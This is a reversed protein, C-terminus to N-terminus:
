EGAGSVGDDSIVSLVCTQNRDALIAQVEPSAQGIPIVALSSVEFVQGAEPLQAPSANEGRDYMFEVVPKEGDLLFGTHLYGYYSDGSTYRFGLLRNVVDGTTYEGVILLRDWEESILDSAPVIKGSACATRLAEDFSGARDAAREVDSCATLASTLSILALAAPIVRIRTNPRPMPETSRNLGVGARTAMM